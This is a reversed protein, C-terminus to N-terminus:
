VFTSYAYRIVINATGASNVNNNHFVYSHTADMVIYLDDHSYITKSANYDLNSGISYPFFIVTGGATADNIAVNGSVYGATNYANQITVQISTIYFTGKPKASLLAVDNVTRIDISAQLGTDGIVISPFNPIGNVDSSLATLEVFNFNSTLFNTILFNCFIIYSVGSNFKALNYVNIINSTSFIPSFQTTFPSVLIIEGTDPIQVILPEENNSNDIWAGVLKDLPRVTGVSNLNVTVAFTPYLSWDFNATLTKSQHQPTTCISVNQGVLAGNYTALIFGSLDYSPKFTAM